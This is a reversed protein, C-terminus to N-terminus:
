SKLGAIVAQGLSIGGDGPPIGRPLVVRISGRLADKIGKVIYDNVAAGGSVMVVNFDCAELAAEALAKGLLYQTTYALDRVPERGLLDILSLVYERTLVVYCGDRFEYELKLSHVLAGGRGAAELKMAPEGEYTREYCIGLLTSVSDLFRGTSSTKYSNKSLKASIEAERVGEPLRSHLGLKIFLELGEEGAEEYLLGALIRAPYQNARDGGPM